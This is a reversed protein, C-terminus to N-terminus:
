TLPMEVELGYGSVRPTISYHLLPTSFTSIWTSNETKAQELVGVSWCEM